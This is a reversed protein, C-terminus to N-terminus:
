FCSHCSHHFANSAVTVHELAPLPFGLRPRWAAKEVYTAAMKRGEPGRLSNGHTQYTLLLMKGTYGQWLM